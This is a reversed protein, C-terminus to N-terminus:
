GQRMWIVSVQLISAGLWYIALKWDREFIAIIMILLYVILLCKVLWLAM